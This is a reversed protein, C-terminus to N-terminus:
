LRIEWLYSSRSPNDNEGAYLVGDPTLALDHCQWLSVGAADRVPGIGLQMRIAADDHGRMLFFCVSRESDNDIAALYGRVIRRRDARRQHHFM